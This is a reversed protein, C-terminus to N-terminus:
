FPFDDEIYPPVCNGGCDGHNVCDENQKHIVSHICEESVVCDNAINCVLERKKISEATKIVKNIKRVDEINKTLIKLCQIFNDETEEILCYLLDTLTEKENDTIKRM